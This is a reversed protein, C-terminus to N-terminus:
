VKNFRYLGVSTSANFLGKFEIEIAIAINIKVRPIIKLPMSLNEKKGGMSPSIAIAVISYGEPVGIRYSTISKIHQILSGM